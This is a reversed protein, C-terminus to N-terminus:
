GMELEDELLTVADEKIRSYGYIVIRM